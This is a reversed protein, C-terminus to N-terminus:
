YLQKFLKKYFVLPLHIDLLVNNYVALGLLAGIMNFEDFNNNEMGYLEVNSTAPNIWVNRGSANEIFLGYQQKFLQSILLQFFEKKV